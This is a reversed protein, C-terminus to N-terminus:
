PLTASWVRSDRCPSIRCLGVQDSLVAHLTLHPRICSRCFAEPLQLNCHKVPGERKIKEQLDMDQLLDRGLDFKGAM